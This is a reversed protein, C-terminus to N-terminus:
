AGLVTRRLLDEYKDRNQELARNPAAQELLNFVYKYREENARKTKARGGLVASVLDTNTLNNTIILRHGPKSWFNNLTRGVRKMALEDLSAEPTEMIFTTGGQKVLVDLLSLRFALDILERQSESVDDEDTRTTEGPQAAASMTAVFVPFEFRSDGEQGIKAVGKSVTLSASESLLDAIYKSFRESLEDSVADVKRRVSVLLTSFQEVKINWTSRQHKYDADLGSVLSRLSRVSETEPAQLQKLVEASDELASIRGRTKLVSNLLGTREKAATNLEDQAKDLAKRARKADAQSKVLRVQELESKPQVTEAQSDPDAGCAPCSGRSLLHELEKQKGEAESGCILCEGESLIRAFLLRAATDMAPFLNTLTTYKAREVARYASEDQQKSRELELRSRQYTDDVVNLRAEYEQLKTKLTSLSRIDAAYKTAVEPAASERGEIDTLRTQNKNLQDRTTRLKSDAKEVARAVNRFEESLTKDLVMAGIVHRQANVDWLASTRSEGFFVINHLLLLVDIFSSVGFLDAIASQYGSENPDDMLDKRRRSASKVERLDLKALGRRITIKRQNFFLTLTAEADEARDAVRQAFFDLTNKNLRTPGAPLISQYRAPSGSAALDFPGTVMRLLLTLLTTKGLGNIGAIVTLGHQFDLQVHGEGDKGPFLDYGDVALSEFRPVVIM